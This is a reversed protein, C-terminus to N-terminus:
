HKLDLNVNGWTALNFRIKGLLLAQILQVKFKIDFPKSIRIVANSRIKIQSKLSNSGLLLNDNWKNTQSFLTGLVKINSKNRVVENDLILSGNATSGNPGTIMIQTKNTNLKLKNATYYNTVEKIYVAINNWINEKSGRLVCFCDDIFNLVFNKNCNYYEIHNTHIINHTILPLDLLYINSFLTSLVSGQYISQNGNVLLDSSQMNVEVYQKRQAFFSAILNIANVNFGIHKLKLM